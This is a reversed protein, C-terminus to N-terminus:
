SAHQMSDVGVEEGVNVLSSVGVIAGCLSITGMMDSEGDCVLEVAGEENDTEVCDGIPLILGEDVGLEDGEINGELEIDGDGEDDFEGVEALSIAGVDTGCSKTIERPGESESDMAGDVWSLRNGESAGLSEGGRVCLWEGLISGLSVGVLSGLPLGLKSGLVVKLVMGVRLGLVLVLVLVLGLEFGDCVGVPEGEILGLPGGLESGVITGVNFMISNHGSPLIAGESLSLQTTMQGVSPRGRGVDQASAQGTPNAANISGGEGPHMSTQEVFPSGCFSPHLSLHQSSLLGLNQLFPLIAGVSGPFQTLGHGNNPDLGLSQTISHVVPRLAQSFGGIGPHAVIHGASPRERGSPHWSRHQSSSLWSLHEFPRNAGESGSLQIMGHGLSPIIPNGFQVSIHGLAKSFQIFGLEGSQTLAQGISSEGFGALQLSVHQSSEYALITGDNFITPV